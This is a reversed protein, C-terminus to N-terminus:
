DDGSRRAQYAALQTFYDRDSAYLLNDPDGSIDPEPLPYNDLDVYVAELAEYLVGYLDVTRAKIAELREQYASIKPAFTAALEAFEARTKDFDDRLARYDERLDQLEANNNALTSRELDRLDSRLIDKQAEANSWLDPDYYQLIAETVIRALEGPHLAELADLEVQGTGYAAEFNAKRADSDKVPVRPLRYTQVQEATLVIPQLAIDLEGFGDNRQYFEIKRAISIPMGLGAPDFDSIYLIRAPRRAEQARRLFHRVATISLEGAGTVLNTKYRRCLPELVDNMTTKEAWLEVLYDQQIDDYGGAGLGPLDPLSAPLSALVPLEPLHYDNVPGSDYLYVEPRPDADPDFNAFTIAEPNRRDIFADPDVMGLYRAWKSASNLYEWNFIDNYYTVGDPRAIPPDQSVIRYHIRRLHVGSQYGFQRWLAAFWRAAQLESPRGTYFPDHQPALALLDNIKCGANKALDKIANYDIAPTAVRERTVQLNDTM